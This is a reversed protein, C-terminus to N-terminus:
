FDALLACLGVLLVLNVSFGSLPDLFNLCEFDTQHQSSMPSSSPLM